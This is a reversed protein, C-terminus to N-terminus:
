QGDVMHCNNNWGDYEEYQAGAHVNSATLSYQADGAANQLTPMSTNYGLIVSKTGQNCISCVDYWDM